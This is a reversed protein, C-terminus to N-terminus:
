YNRWKGVTRAWYNGAGYQGVGADILHQRLLFANKTHARRVVADLVTEVNVSKPFLNKGNTFINNPGIRASPDIKLLEERLEDRAASEDQRMRARKAALATPKKPTTIVDAGSPEDDDDDVAKRKPARKRAAAPKKTAYAIPAPLALRQQQQKEAAAPLALQRRHAAPAALARQRKRRSPGAATENEDEGGYEWVQEDDDIKPKEYARKRGARVAVPLPAAARDSFEEDYSIPLPAPPPPPPAVTPLAFPRRAIERNIEANERLEL